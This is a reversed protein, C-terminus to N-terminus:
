LKILKLPKSILIDDAGYLHIFYIGAKLHHIGIQQNGKDISHLVVTEGSINTIRINRVELGSQSLYLIDSAPNPYCQIDKTVMLDPIGDFSYWGMYIDLSFSFSIERSNCENIQSEPLINISDQSNCWFGQYIYNNGKKIYSDGGVQFFSQDIHNVYGNKPVINISSIRYVSDFYKFDMTDWSMSVPDGACYFQFSSEKLVFGHINCKLNACDTNFQSKVMDDASYVHNAKISTDLIDLGSQFGINGQQDAGFRITDTVIRYTASDRFHIFLKARWPTQAKISGALFLVCMLLRKTLKM